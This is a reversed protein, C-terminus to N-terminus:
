LYLQTKKFVNFFPVLMHSLTYVYMTSIVEIPQQSCFTTPRSSRFDVTFNVTSSPFKCKRPPLINNNGATISTQNSKLFHSTQLTIAWM